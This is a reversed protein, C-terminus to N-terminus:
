KKTTIVIAGHAGKPGYLKEAAAGKIVEIREIRDPPLTRLVSEDAPVGDLMVVGEFKQKAPEWRVSDGGRLLVRTSDGSGDQRLMVVDRMRVRVGTSDTRAALGAATTAVRLATATSDISRIEMSVVPPSGAPAAASENTATRTRLRIAQVGRPEKVIEIAALREAPLAKADSESVARGDIFYRRETPTGIRELRQTAAAVDMGELEASTPLESGCAAVAAATAVVLALTRRPGRFMPPRA